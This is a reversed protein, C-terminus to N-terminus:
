KTVYHAPCWTSADDTGYPPLCIFPDWTYTGADIGKSDTLSINFEYAPVGSATRAELVSARWYGANPDNPDNSPVFTPDGPVLIDPQYKDAFRFDSAVVNEDRVIPSFYWQLEDGREVVVSLEMGENGSIIDRNPDATMAIGKGVVCTKTICRCKTSDDIAKGDAMCGFAEAITNVDVRSNITIVSAAFAQSPIGLIISVFLVLALFATLPKAFFQRTM